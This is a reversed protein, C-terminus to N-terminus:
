VHARGIESWRESLGVGAHVGFGNGFELDEAAEQVNVSAGAYQIGVFLGKGSQAEAKAAATASLAAATFAARLMRTM